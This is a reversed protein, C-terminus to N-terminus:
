QKYGIVYGRVNPIHTVAFDQREAISKNVQYMPHEHMSLADDYLTGGTSVDYFLFIGKQKISDMIKHILSNTPTLADWECIRAYDFFNAFSPDYIDFFEIVNYNLSNLDIDERESIIKEFVQLSFTNFMYVNKNQNQLMALNPLCENPTLLINEVADPNRFHIQLFADIESKLSFVWEGYTTNSYAETEYQLFYNDVGTAILRKDPSTQEILTRGTMSWIKVENLLKEFNNLDAHSSLNRAIIGQNFPINNM